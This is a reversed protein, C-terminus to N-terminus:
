FNQFTKSNIPQVFIEQFDEVIRYQFIVNTEDDIFITNINKKCNSSTQKYHFRIYCQFICKNKVNQPINCSFHNLLPVPSNPM